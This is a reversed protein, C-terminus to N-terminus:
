LGTTVRAVRHRDIWYGWLPFLWGALAFVALGRADPPPPGLESAAYVLVLVATFSWVALRGVRDRAATARLYLFLGPIFFAAELVYTMLLANWLGLGVRPGGPYLPLDPRHVILDLLWHSVVLAGVVWAGTRNRRRWAYLLGFLGGWLVLALLSHSIPYHTFDLPSARTIGPSIKVREVGALLLVPWLLDAWQAALILTGLSTRPAVGKAGLAV